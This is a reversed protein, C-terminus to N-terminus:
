TTPQVTLISAPSNNNPLSFAFTAGENKGESKAWIKGHHKEIIMKAIYLGLGTGKNDLELINQGRFFPQFLKNFDEPDIGAGEDKIIFTTEQDTQQLTIEIKGRTTYKIANDIFNNIVQRIKDQDIRIPKLNSPKTFELAIEKKPLNKNFQNVCNQVIEEIKGSSLHVEINGSQIYSISLLESVLSTMRKSNLHIENVAEKQQPNLEGLSKDNLMSVFGRIMSLPTYLQHSTLSILERQRGSEEKLVKQYALAEEKASKEQKLQMALFRCFITVLLILGIQWLGQYVTETPAYAAQSGLFIEFVVILSAIMAILLANIFELSLAAAAIPLFFLAFMFHGWDKSLHILIGILVIDAIDKLYLRKSRSFYKYIVLYYVLSFVAISALLIFTTQDDIKNTPLFRIGFIVVIMVAWTIIEIIKEYHGAKKKTEKLITPPNEDPM